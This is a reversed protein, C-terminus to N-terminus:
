SMDAENKDQAQEAQQQAQEAQEQEAQEQEAQQQAQEAQEQEAQEQEAQQQQARDKRLKENEAIMKQMHAEEEAAAELVQERTWKGNLIAQVGRLMSGWSGGSHMGDSDLLKELRDACDIRHPETEQTFMFGGYGYFDRIYAQLDPYEVLVDLAKIISSM